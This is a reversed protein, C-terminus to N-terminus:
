TQREVWRQLVSTRLEAQGGLWLLMPWVVTGESEAEM